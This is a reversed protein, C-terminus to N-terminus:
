SAIVLIPQMSLGCEDRGTESPFAAQRIYVRYRQFLGAIHQFVDTGSRVNERMNIDSLVM